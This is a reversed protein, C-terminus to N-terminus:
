HRGTSEAISFHFSCSNMCRVFDNSIYFFCTKRQKKTSKFTISNFFLFNVIFYFSGQYSIVFAFVCLFRFSFRFWCATTYRFFQELMYKYNSTITCICMIGCCPACETAFPSKWLSAHFDEQQSRVAVAVVLVVLGDGSGVKM